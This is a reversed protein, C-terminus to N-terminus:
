VRFLIPAFHVEHAFLKLVVCVYMIYTYIQLYSRTQTYMYIYLYIHYILYTYICVDKLYFMSIPKNGSQHWTTTHTDTHTHRCDTSVLSWLGVWEHQCSYKARKSSVTVYKKDPLKAERGFLYFLEECHSLLCQFVVHLWYTWAPHTLCTLFVVSNDFALLWMILDFLDPSIPRRARRTVIWFNSWSGFGSPAWVRPFYLLSFCFSLVKPWM